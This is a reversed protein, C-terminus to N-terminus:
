EVLFVNLCNNSLLELFNSQKYSTQKIESTILSNKQEKGLKCCQITAAERADTYNSTPSACLLCTVVCFAAASTL